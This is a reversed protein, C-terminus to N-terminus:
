PVTESKTLKTLKNLALWRAHLHEIEEPTRRLNSVIEELAHGASFLDFARAILGLDEEIIPPATPNQWQRYLQTATARTVCLKAIVANILAEGCEAHEVFFQVCRRELEAPIGCTRKLYRNRADIQEPSYFRQLRAAEAAEWTAIRQQRKLIVEASPYGGDRINTLPWGCARGFAIWWREAEELKLADHVAELVTIEYDLEL